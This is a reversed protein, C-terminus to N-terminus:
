RLFGKKFKRISAPICSNEGAGANGGGGPTLSTSAQVRVGPLVGASVGHVGRDRWVMCMMM